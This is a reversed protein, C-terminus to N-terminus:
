ITATKIINAMFEANPYGVEKYQAIVKETEYTVRHNAVSFQKADGEVILYAAKAMGDFPLGVSGTNAVCKGHFYRVYPLHIHGYVYLDAAKKRLMEFEITEADATPPVVTFLSDPTAHFGYIQLQDSLKLSFDSPLSQLYVVDESDLQSVTWERETRMMQLAQDPVEGEKIGRVLWDDANGKIVITNLSRVLELARKPEPGRFCIDGLVAIQNVNKSAIDELVAELAVANGHVDSIFAIKM